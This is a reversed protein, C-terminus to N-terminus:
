LDEAGGEGSREKNLTGASRECIGRKSFYRLFEEPSEPKEVEIGVPLSVLPVQHLITPQPESRFYCTRCSSTGAAKLFGRCRSRHRRGRWLEDFPQEKLSGFYENEAQAYSCFALTGDSNLTPAYLPKACTLPGTSVVGERYERRRDDEKYRYRSLAEREPVLADDVSDGRYNYPRLTKVSFLDAGSEQALKLLEPMQTETGKTALVRFEILPEPQGLRKKAEALKRITQVVTELRGGTRYTEYTEQDAGDVCVIITSPRARVLKELKEPSYVVNGNTSIVTRIASKGAYEIMESLKPHLMPEGWDWFLMFMLSDRLDDVTRCFLDFDLDEGARGLVDTGTPCAPCKLNCRTTVGVHLIHPRSLEVFRLFSQNIVQRALNWRKKKNLSCHYILREQCIPFSVMGSVEVLRRPFAWVPRIWKKIKNM